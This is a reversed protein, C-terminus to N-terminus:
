RQCALTLLKAGVSGPSAHRWRGPLQVVGHSKGGGMRGTYFSIQLGRFMRQECDFESLSITSTYPYGDIVQAESLDLLEWVRVLNGSRVSTTPDYYGKSDPADNYMRWQASSVAPFLSILLSIIIKRMLSGRLSSSFSLINANIVKTQESM